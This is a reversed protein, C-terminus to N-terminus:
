LLILKTGNVIGSNKVYVDNDIKKGTKKDYLKFNGDPQFNGDSLEVVTNAILNKITGVKRNIPILIDYQQELLPVYVLVLIKDM